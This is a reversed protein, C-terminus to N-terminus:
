LDQFVCISLTYPSVRFYSLVFLHSYVATVMTAAHIICFCPLVKWLMLYCTHLGLQASKLQLELQYFLCIFDYISFSEFGLFPININDLNPLVSYMSYDLSKFQYFICGYFDNFFIEQKNVIVAKVAAKNSAIRTHWFNILPTRYQDLVKWGLFM